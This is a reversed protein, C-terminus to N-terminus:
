DSFRVNKEELQQKVSKQISGEPAANEVFGKHLPQSYFKEVAEVTKQLNALRDAFSKEVAEVKKGISKQMDGIQKSLETFLPSKLLDTNEVSKSSYSEQGPTTGTGIRTGQIKTEPNFVNQKQGTMKGPTITHGATTSAQAGEAQNEGGMEGKETTEEEEESSEEEADDEAEKKVKKKKGKYEVEEDETSDDEETAEDEKEFRQKKPKSAEKCKCDEEEEADDEKLKTAEKKKMNVEKCENISSSKEMGKITQDVNDQYRFRHECRECYYMDNFQENEVKSIKGSHCWPCENVPM